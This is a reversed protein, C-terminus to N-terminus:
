DSYFTKGDITFRAYGVISMNIWTACDVNLLKSINKSIETARRDRSFLRRFFFQAFVDVELDGLMLDRFSRQIRIVIHYRDLIRSKSNLGDALIDRIINLEDQTPMNVFESLTIYCVPM